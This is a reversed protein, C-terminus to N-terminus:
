QAACYGAVHAFQRRKNKRDPGLHRWAFPVLRLRRVGAHEMGCDPCRTYVVVDPMSHFVTLKVM